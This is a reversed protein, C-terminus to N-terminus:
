LSVVCFFSLESALVHLGHSPLPRPSTWRQSFSLFFFFFIRPVERGRDWSPHDWFSLCHRWRTLGKWPPFVLLHFPFSFFRIQYPVVVISFLPCDFGGVANDRMEGRGETARHSPTGSGGRLFKQTREGRWCLKSRKRYEKGGGGCSFIEMFSAPLGLPGVSERRQHSILRLKAVQESVARHALPV